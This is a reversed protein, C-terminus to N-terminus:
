GRPAYALCEIEVLAGLALGNAGLASRAPPNGTFFELYVENLAAYDAMNALFVTCKVVDDMDAGAARLVERINELTQRAEAQIGGEVLEITGPKAGIAGSLYIMDGVRVAPTFVPLRGVNEPYVHEVMPPAAQPTQAASATGGVERIECGALALSAVAVAVVAVRSGARTGAIM